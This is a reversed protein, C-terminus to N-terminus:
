VIYATKDFPKKDLGIREINGDCRKCLHYFIISDTKPNIIKELKDKLRLYHKKDTNCEFVSYQVRQGFDKLTKAVRNRKSDKEIDYSVIYYM